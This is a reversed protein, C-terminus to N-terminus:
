YAFRLPSYHTSISVAFIIIIFIWMFIMIIILIDKRHIGVSGRKHKETFQTLTEKVQKVIAHENLADDLLPTQNKTITNHVMRKLKSEM